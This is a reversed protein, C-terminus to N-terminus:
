NGGNDHNQSAREFYHSTEPQGSPGANATATFAASALVLAVIFTKLVTTEEQNPRDIGANV